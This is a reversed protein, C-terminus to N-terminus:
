DAAIALKVELPLLVVYATALWFLLPMRELEGSLAAAAGLLVVVALRVATALGARQMKASPTDGSMAVLVGGAVAASLLSILCGAAMAVLGAEGSFRRTPLWGIAVLGAVLAAALAIFRVYRGSASASM